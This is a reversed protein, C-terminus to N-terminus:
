ALAGYYREGAKAKMITLITFLYINFNCRLALGNFHITSSLSIGNKNKSLELLSNEHYGQEITYNMWPEDWASFIGGEGKNLVSFKTKVIWKPGFWKEIGLQFYELDTGLPYGLPKRRYSFREWPFPTKYTRNAIRVYEASLTLGEIHFPDAYQSGILWGIENPELDGPTKTWNFTTM